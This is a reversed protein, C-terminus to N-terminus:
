AGVRVRKSSDLAMQQRHHYDFTSLGSSIDLQETCRKRKNSSNYNNSSYNNLQHINSVPSTITAGVVQQPQAFYQPQQQQQQQPFDVPVCSDMDMDMEQCDRMEDDGEEAVSATQHNQPYWVDKGASKQDDDDDMGGSNNLLQIPGDASAFSYGRSPTDAFDWDSDRDGCGLGYVCSPKTRHKYSLWEHSAALPSM